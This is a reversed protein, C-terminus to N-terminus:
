RLNTVRDWAQQLWSSVQPAIRLDWFISIGLGGSVSGITNAIPAAVPAAEPQAASVLMGTLAGVAKGGLGSVGFGLSDTAFDALTEELPDGAVWHRSINPGISAGYGIVPVFQGVGRGVARVLGAHGLSEPMEDLMAIAGTWYLDSGNVSGPPPTPAPTFPSAVKMRPAQTPTPAVMRPSPTNAQNVTAQNASTPLIPAQTSVFSQLDVTLTKGGM